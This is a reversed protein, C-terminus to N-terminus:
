LMLLLGAKDVGQPLGNITGRIRGMTTASTWHHDQAIKKLLERIGHSSAKFNTSKDGFVQITLKNFPIYHLENGGTLKTYWLTFPKLLGTHSELLWLRGIGKANVLDVVHHTLVIGKGNFDPLTGKTELILKGFEKKLVKLVENVLKAYAKQKETSRPKGPEDKEHNVLDAKPFTSKLGSYDPAYVLMQIPKNKRVEEVWGGIIRLDEAVDESLKYVDFREKDDTEYSQHANRILTRLNFMITDASRISAAGEGEFALSTGVSMGLTGRSRM